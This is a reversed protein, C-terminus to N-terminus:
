ALGGRALAAIFGGVFTDGLGVTTPLDVDLVLAPVCVLAPVAGGRPGASELTEAVRAGGPHVPLTAVRAYDDATFGDGVVYRTSAMTIGGVLGARVEDARVGRALSWYKTHVVTTSAPVIAALEDLARLVDDADLLDVPREVYAQLEDENMSFVDIVDVLRDRVRLNLGPVHFGSDEYFVLAGAPLEAIDTRIRALRDELVEEDQIVNFGAVMFVSARRLAPGLEDSIVLERNPPDNAYIIRNPHPSRLDIDGAQVRVGEAFQVILHPDTTDQEASCMYACGEPLLRRVHDDISM